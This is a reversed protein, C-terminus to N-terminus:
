ETPPKPLEMWHTIEGLREFSLQQFYGTKPNFMAHFVQKGLGTCRCVICQIFKDDDNEPLGDYVSIWKM